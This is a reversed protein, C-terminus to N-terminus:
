PRSWFARAIELLDPQLGGRFSVRVRSGDRHEMEIVCESGPVLQKADVEIFNLSSQTNRQHVREKLIKYDLHLHKAVQYVSHEPVLRVAAEWLAEPIPTRKTRTKRWEDFQHGVDEITLNPLQVYPPKM